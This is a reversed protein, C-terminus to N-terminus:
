IEWHYVAKRDRFKSIHYLCHKAQAMVHMIDNGSVAALPEFAVSLQKSTISAHIVLFPLTFTTRLWGFPVGTKDCPGKEFLFYTHM